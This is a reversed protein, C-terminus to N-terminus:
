YRAAHMSQLHVFICRDFMLSFICACTPNKWTSLVVEILIVSCQLSVNTLLTCLEMQWSNNVIEYWSDLTNPSFECWAWLITIYANHDDRNHKRTHRAAEHGMCFQRICARRSSGTSVSSICTLWFIHRDGDFFQAHVPLVSWRVIRRIAPSSIGTCMFKSLMNM